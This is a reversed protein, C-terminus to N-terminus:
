HRGCGVGARLRNGQSGGAGGGGAGAAAPHLAGGTPRMDSMCIQSSCPRAGWQQRTVQNTRHSLTLPQQTVRNHEHPCRLVGHVFAAHLGSKRGRKWWWGGCGYMYGVLHTVAVLGWNRGTCGWGSDGRGRAGEREGRGRRGERGGRGEEGEWRGGVEGVQAMLTHLEAAVQELGPGLEALPVTRDGGPLKLRATVGGPTAGGSVVVWMRQSRSALTPAIPRPPPSPAPPPPPLCQPLTLSTAANLEM